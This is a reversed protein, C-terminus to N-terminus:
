PAHSKNSAEYQKRFQRVVDIGCGTLINERRRPHLRDSATEAGATIQERQRCRRQTKDRLINTTDIGATIQEGM